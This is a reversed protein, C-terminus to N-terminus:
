PTQLVIEEMEKRFVSIIFWSIGTKEGDLGREMLGEDGTILIRNM